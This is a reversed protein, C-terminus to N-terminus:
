RSILGTSGTRASVPCSYRSRAPKTACHHSNSSPTRARGRLFPGDYRDLVVVVEYREGMELGGPYGPFGANSFPTDFTYSTQSLPLTVEHVLKAATIRTGDASEAEIRRVQVRVNTPTAGGEPLTWDITPQLGGGTLRINKIFAPLADKDYDTTPYTISPGNPALPNSVTVQFPTADLANLREIIAPNALNFITTYSGFTGGSISVMGAFDMQQVYSGFSDHTVSVLTSGGNASFLTQGGSAIGFLDSDPSPLVSAYIRISDTNAGAFFRSNGIRDNFVAVQSAAINFNIPEAVAAALTFALGFAAVCRGLPHVFSSRM